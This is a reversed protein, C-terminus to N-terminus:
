WWLDGHMLNNRANYLINYLTTGVWANLMCVISLIAISAYGHEYAGLINYEMMVTFAIFVAIDSAIIYTLGVADCHNLLFRKIRRIRYRMDDGGESKYYIISIPYIGVEM